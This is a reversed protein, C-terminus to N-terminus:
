KLLRRVCNADDVRQQRLNVGDLSIRINEDHRRGVHRAGDVEREDVSGVDLVVDAVGGLKGDTRHQM